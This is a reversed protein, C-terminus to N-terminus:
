ACNATTAPGLNIEIVGSDRGSAVVRKLLLLVPFISIVLRRLRAILAFINKHRLM